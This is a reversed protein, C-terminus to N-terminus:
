KKPTLPTYYYILFYTCPTSGANRLFTTSGSAFFFVSGPGAAKAKGDWNAEVLGEKVIVIEEELRKSPEGSKEGPNLTTVHVHMRDVTATPGDFVM